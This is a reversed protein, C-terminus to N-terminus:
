EETAVAVAEQSKKKLIKKRGRQHVERGWDEVV